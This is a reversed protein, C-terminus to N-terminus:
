SIVKEIFVTRVELLNLIKDEKLMKGNADKVVQLIPRDPFHKNQSSVIAIEGINTKVISGVPYVAIFSIFSDVIEKTFVYGEYKKLYAIVEYTKERKCGLGCIREDFYDCIGVIEYEKKIESVKLPFGSGDIREHHYLIINKSLESLWEEDKLATYGYIPHKKYEQQDAKPLADINQNSYEIILYRLGIDHLLSGVGIDHIIKKELKMKIAMIISITCVMISHEYIDANREKIDFVREIVEDEDLIANIVEDAVVSIIKLDESHRYTHKEIVSRVKEKLKIETEEKLIGMVVKNFNKSERIYVERIDFEQLKKIYEEKIVTGESLLINYDKTYIDKALIKVESLQEIKCLKV